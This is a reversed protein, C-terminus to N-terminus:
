FERGTMQTYTRKDKYVKLDTWKLDQSPQVNLFYGKTKLIDWMYKMEGSKKEVDLLNNSSHTYWTHTFVKNNKNKEFFQVIQAIKKDMEKKTM